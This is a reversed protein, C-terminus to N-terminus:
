QNKVESHICHKETEEMSMQRLTKAHYRLLLQLADEWYKLNHKRIKGKHKEIAALMVDLAAQGQCIYQTDMGEKLAWKICNYYFQLIEYNDRGKPYYTTEMVCDYIFRNTRIGCAVLHNLIEETEAWPRNSFEIRLEEKYPLMESRVMEDQIEKLSANQCFKAFDAMGLGDNWEEVRYAVLWLKVEGDKLTDDIGYAFDYAARGNSLKLRLRKLESEPLKSSSNTWVKAVYENWPFYWRSRMEALQKYCDAIPKDSMSKAIYLTHWCADEGKMTQLYAEPIQSFESHNELSEVMDEFLMQDLHVRHRFCICSQPDDADETRQRTIMINRYGLSEYHSGDCNYKAKTLIQKGQMDYYCVTGEKCTNIVECEDWKEVWDFQCPLIWHSKSDKVGYKGNSKDYIIWCGNEWIRRPRKSKTGNDNNGTKIQYESLNQKEM